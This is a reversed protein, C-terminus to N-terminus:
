AQRRQRGLFGVGCRGSETPVHPQERRHHHGTDAAAGSCVVFDTANACYRRLPPVASNVGDVNRVAM